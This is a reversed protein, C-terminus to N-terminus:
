SKRKKRKKQRGPKAPSEDKIFTFTGKVDMLQLAKMNRRLSIRSFLPLNDSKKAGDKHTVMAFLVKRKKNDLPAVFKAGDEDGASDIILQRLRDLAVPELTILEIANTGQNFLHSLKSSLTSIKLHGFVAHGNIVSYLDCPEVAKEGAPAISTQDLCLTNAEAEAVGINYAAENAHRFPPLWPEEFLADLDDHLKTIFQEEVKYWNGESLHYASADVDLGTDFVLSKYISYRDLVNGDEDIILLKHKKLVAVSLRNRDFDHSELYEYYRGVFLDDYELSSGLGSFSYSTSRNYDIMDPVILDPGEGARLAILLKADLEEVLAPDKIPAVNQIDPFTEQYENSEYLRLLDRCLAALQEPQARTSIRLNSAGTAHKFLGAYAPKVKGTLRRLISSDQDFDFLTLDSAIPVQTRQRRGIGPELADTSKLASPDVSNLTVRLGFDYEYSDEKLNHAV